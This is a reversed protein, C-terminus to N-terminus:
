RLLSFYARWPGVDPGVYRVLVRAIQAVHALDHAMWCALLQHLTVPGFEPHIGTRGLDAASLGFRALRDLNDARLREFEWLLADLTWGRYRRFGAERDFPTFRKDADPSLIITVRPLWNHVEGEIVHCLVELPTWAGPAERFSLAAEPAMALLSRLAAPTRALAAQIEELEIQDHASNM